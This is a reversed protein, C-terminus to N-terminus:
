HHRWMRTFPIRILHSLLSYLTLCCSEDGIPLNSLRSNTTTVVLYRYRCRIYSIGVCACHIMHDISRCLGDFVMVSSDKRIPVHFIREKSSSYLISYPQGSDIAHHGSRFSVVVALQVRCRYSLIHFTNSSCVSFKSITQKCSTDSSNKVICCCCCASSDNDDLQVTTSRFWSHATKFDLALGHCITVDNLTVLTGFRDPQRSRGTTTKCDGCCCCCCFLVM